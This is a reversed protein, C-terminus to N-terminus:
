GSGKQWVVGGSRDTGNKWREISPELLSLIEEHVQDPDLTAHLVKIRVADEEALRLYGERVRLHF